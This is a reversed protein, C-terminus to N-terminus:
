NPGSGLGGEGLWRYRRDHCLTIMVRGQRVGHSQRRARMGETQAGEEPAQNSLAPARSSWLVPDRGAATHRVSVGAGGAAAGAPPGVQFTKSAPSTPPRGIVPIAGAHTLPPGGCVVRTSQPPVSVAGLGQVRALSACPHSLQRM